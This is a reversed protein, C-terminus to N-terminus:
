DKIQQTVARLSFFFQFGFGTDSNYDELYKRFETFVYFNTM